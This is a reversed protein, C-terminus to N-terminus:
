NARVRNAVNITDGHQKVVIDRFMSLGLHAGESAPKTTFFPHFMGPGRAVPPGWVSLEAM